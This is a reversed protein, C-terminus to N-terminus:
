MRHVRESAIGGLMAVLVCLALWAKARGFVGLERMRLDLAVSGPQQLEFVLFSPAPPAPLRTPSHTPTPSCTPLPHHGCGGGRGGGISVLLRPRGPAASPVLGGVAEALPRILLTM